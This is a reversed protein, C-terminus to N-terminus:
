SILCGPSEVTCPTRHMAVSYPGMRKPQVLSNYHLPIIAHCGLETSTCMHLNRALIQAQISLRCPAWTLMDLMCVGHHM